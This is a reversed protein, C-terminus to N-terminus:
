KVGQNGIGPNGSVTLEVEYARAGGSSDEPGAARVEGGHATIISRAVWLQALSGEAGVRLNFGPVPAAPV